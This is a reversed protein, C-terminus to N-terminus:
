MVKMGKDREIYCVGGVLWCGALGAWDLGAWGAMGDKHTIYVLKGGIGRRM